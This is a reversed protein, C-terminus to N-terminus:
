QGGGACRRLAGIAANSGTMSYEGLTGLVPSTIAITEAVSAFRGLREATVPDLDSNALKSPGELKGTFRMTGGPDFTMAVPYIQNPAAHHAADTLTWGIAGGAPMVFALDQGFNDRAATCYYSGNGTFRTM